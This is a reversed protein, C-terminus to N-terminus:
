YKVCVRDTDWWPATRRSLQSRLYHSMVCFIAIGLILLKLKIHMLEPTTKM